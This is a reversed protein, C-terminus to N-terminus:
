IKSLLSFHQLLLSFLIGTTLFPAFPIIIKKSNYICKKLLYFTLALCCGLCIACLAITLDFSWALLSIIKIDGGGFLYQNLISESILVIFMLIILLCFSVLFSLVIQQLNFTIIKIGLTTIWTIIIESNYVKQWRLDTYSFRLFPLFCFLNFFINM